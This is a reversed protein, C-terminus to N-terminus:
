LLGHSLRVIVWTHVPCSLSMMKGDKGVRNGAGLILHDVVTHPAGQPAGPTGVVRDEWLGVAQLHPPQHSAQRCARMIHSVTACSRLEFHHMWTQQSGRSALGEMGAIRSVAQQCRLGDDESGFLVKCAEDWSPATQNCWRCPLTSCRTCALILLQGFGTGQVDSGHSGSM